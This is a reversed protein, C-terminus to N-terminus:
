APLFGVFSALHKSRTYRGNVIKRATGTKGAVTYDDLQAGRATGQTGVVQTLAKTIAKTSEPTMVQRVMFPDYHSM